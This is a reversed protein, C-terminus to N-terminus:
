EKFGRIAWLVGYGILLLVLPPLFIWVAANRRALWIPVTVAVFQEQPKQDCHLFIDTFEKAEKCKKASQIKHFDVIPVTISFDIEGKKQLTLDDSFSMETLIPDYYGSAIATLNDFQIITVPVVWCLAFLVWVRFLGKAM